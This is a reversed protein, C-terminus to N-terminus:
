ATIGPWTADRVLGPGAALAREQVAPRQAPMPWACWASSGDAEQVRLRGSGQIHLVLAEVPDGAFAIARGAFAM